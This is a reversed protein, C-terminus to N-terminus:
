APEETSVVKLGKECGFFISIWTVFRMLDGFQSVQNLFPKSWWLVASLSCFFRCYPTAWSAHTINRASVTPMHPQLAMSRNHVKPHRITENWAAESWSEFVVHVTYYLEAYIYIYKTNLVSCTQPIGLIDFNELSFPWSDNDFTEPWLWLTMSWSDDKYVAIVAVQNSGLTEKTGEQCPKHKANTHLAPVCQADFQRVMWCPFWTSILKIATITLAIIRICGSNRLQQKHTMGRIDVQKRHAKQNGLGQWLATYTVHKTCVDCVLSTDCFYTHKPILWM